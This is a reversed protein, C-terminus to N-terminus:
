LVFLVFDLDVLTKVLQGLPLAARGWGLKEGMVFIGYSLPM